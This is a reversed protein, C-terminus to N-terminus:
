IKLKPIEEAPINGVEKIVVGKSFKKILKVFGRLSDVM